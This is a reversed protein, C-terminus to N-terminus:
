KRASSVFESPERFSVLAVEIDDEPALTSLLLLLALPPHPSLRCLVTSSSAITSSAPAWAVEEVGEAEEEVEVKAGRGARWWWRGRRLLLLMRSSRKKGGRATLMLLRSIQLLLPQRSFLLPPPLPTKKSEPPPSPPLGGM